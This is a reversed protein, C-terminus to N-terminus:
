AVDGLHKVIGRYRDEDHQRWYQRILTRRRAKDRAPAQDSLSMQTADRGKQAFFYTAYGKREQKVWSVAEACLLLADVEAPSKIVNLQRLLECIEEITLGGFEQIFGVIIKILHGSRAADFRSPEKIESLRRDIARAMRDKLVELNVAACSDGQMGIDDDDVVYVAEEGRRNQLSLLPGLKIFSNQQFHKDRVVVLLRTAIEEVMAFAGLEALSGESESFLIILECIQAFDTEFALLDSYTPRSLYSVNVDEALVLERRRRGLPNDAIKLFADRLSAPAPKALDTIQGGCLFIVDTPAQVRISTTDLYEVFPPLM